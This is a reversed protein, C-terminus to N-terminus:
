LHASVAVIDRRQKTRPRVQIQLDLADVVELLTALRPNAPTERTTSLLRSVAPLQKGTRRALETKSMERRERVRELIALLKQESKQLNLQRKYVTSFEGDRMQQSLYKDFAAGTKTRKTM